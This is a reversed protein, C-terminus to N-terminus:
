IKGTMKNQSFLAGMAKKEKRRERGARYKKRRKIKPFSHLWQKKRKEGRWEAERHKVDKTKQPTFKLCKRVVRSVM